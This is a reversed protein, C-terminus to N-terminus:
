TASPLHRYSFYSSQYYVAHLFNKLTLTFLFLSFSAYAIVPLILQEVKINLLKELNTFPNKGEQESDIGQLVTSENEVGVLEGHISTQHTNSILVFQFGIFAILFVICLKM